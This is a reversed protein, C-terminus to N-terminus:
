MKKQWIIKGKKIQDTLYATLVFRNKSEYKVVVCLYKDGVKTGFYYKYFLHASEDSKSQVVVLPHLLTERIAPIMGVMEPHDLIHHLREETLRILRGDLDKLIM